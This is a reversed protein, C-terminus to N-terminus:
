AKVDGRAPYSHCRFAPEGTNVLSSQCRCNKPHERTRNRRVRQLLNPITALEDGLIFAHATLKGSNFTFNRGFTFRKSDSKAGNNSADLAFALFL